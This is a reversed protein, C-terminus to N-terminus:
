RRVTDDILQIWGLRNWETSEVRALCDQCTVAMLWGSEALVPYRQLQSGGCSDCRGEVDEREVRVPPAVRGFAEGPVEPPRGARERRLAETADEDLSLGEPDRSPDGVIVVGYQRAAGDISVYEDRVDRLVAEPPRQDPAGFGGGGSSVLRVITGGPFSFPDEAAWHYYTGDVDVAGTDPDLMGAVPRAAGHSGGAASTRLTGADLAGTAGHESTWAWAGGLAGHGGGQVGFGAAQKTASIVFRHETPTRWLTEMTLGTGGRHTGPGASDTQFESRLLLVPSNAEFAEIETGLFNALYSHQASDADGARNAGWGAVPDSSTVWPTGDPRTGSVAHTHTPRGDGALALDGLVPELARCLASFVATMPEWYLMVPAPPRASIISGDPVVVDVQRMFSSAFPTTPDLLFKLAIAVAGKADPWTANLSTLCQQSTGSLDVEARSGRVRVRVAVRYALDPDTGDCDIHDVASYDGDPVAGIARAAQEAAADCSYRISGLYSDVGYREITETVLAEGLKLSQFITEFDPLLMGGFRGNDLLLSFTSRVPRDDRFLLTPPVVLGNEYMNRKMGSFGGPVSGGVDLMHARITLVTVMEGNHFVPRMFAVDNVHTGNRFPDNGILLDGPKLNEPGFEEVNNAVADRMSGYFLALTKAVTPTAYRLAPGGALTASFDYTDRLIPSFANTLLQSCVHEIIYQLRSSLITSTFRDCHYRKKLDGDSM